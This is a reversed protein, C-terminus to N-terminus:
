FIRPILKKSRKVYDEYEKGFRNTLMMEEIKIRYLRIPIMLTLVLFGYLSSLLLPGGLFFLIIGLYAPHRIQCYIGKTILEHDDLIRLTGSFYRGLTRVARVRIAIGTILLFIGLCNLIGFHLNEKQLVIIDIMTLAFAIVVLSSSLIYFYVDKRIM